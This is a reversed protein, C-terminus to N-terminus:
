NGPTIGAEVRQLSVTIPAYCALFTVDTTSIQPSVFVFYYCCWFQEVKIKFHAASYGSEITENVLLPTIPMEVRRFKHKLAGNCNFTKQGFRVTRANAKHM